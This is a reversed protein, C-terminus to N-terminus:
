EVEQMRINRRIVVWAGLLGVITAGLALNGLPQVINQWLNALIPYQPNTPLGYVEPQEELVYLVHLGGMETEGYLRAQDVGKTKLAAVREQGQAILKDRDGYTIAGFPCAMSCTTQGGNSTRQVCFTCKNSKAQGTLLNAVDLQPIGFPCAQSCYGCGNCKDQDLVVFGDPHHYLAGTPCVDVCAAQTCHNCARKIFYQRVHPFQGTEHTVM